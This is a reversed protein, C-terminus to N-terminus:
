QGESAIKSAADMLFRKVDEPEFGPGLKEAEKAATDSVLKALQQAAPGVKSILEDTKEEQSQKFEEEPSDQESFREIEEQIIEKIREKSLRM